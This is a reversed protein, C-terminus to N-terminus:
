THWDFWLTMVKGEWSAVREILDVAAPRPWLLVGSPSFSVPFRLLRLHWTTQHRLFVDIFHMQPVSMANQLICMSSCKVLYYAFFYMTIIIPAKEKHRHLKLFAHESQSFSCDIEQPVFNYRGLNPNSAGQSFEWREPVLWAWATM